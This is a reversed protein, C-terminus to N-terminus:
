AQGAYNKCLTLVAVKLMLANAEPSWYPMRSVVQRIAGVSHAPRTSPPYYPIFGSHSCNQHLTISIYLYHLPTNSKKM